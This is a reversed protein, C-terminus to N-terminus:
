RVNATEHAAGKLTFRSRSRVAGAVPADSVTCGQEDFAFPLPMLGADRLGAVVDGQRDPPVCFLFFGGGGAGAIKGGYAGRDRAIQYWRDIETSSMRPSM